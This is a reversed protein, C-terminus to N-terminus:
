VAPRSGLTREFLDQFLDHFFSGWFEAPTVGERSLTAFELLYAFVVPTSLLAPIAFLGLITTTLAITRATGPTREEWSWSRATRLRTTNRLEDVGMGPRILVYKAWADKVLSVIVLEETKDPQERLQPISLRTRAPSLAVNGRAPSLAAHGHVSSFAFASATSCSLSAVVFFPVRM